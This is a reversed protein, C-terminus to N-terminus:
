TRLHLLVSENSEDYEGVFINKIDEASLHYHNSITRIESQTFDSEGSLKASATQRSINLLKSIANVFEEDGYLIMKSKLLLANM